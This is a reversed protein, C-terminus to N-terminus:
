QKEPQLLVFYCGLLGGIVSLIMLWILFVALRRAKKEQKSHKVSKKM